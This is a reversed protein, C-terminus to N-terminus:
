AQGRMRKLAQEHPVASSPDAEHEALRRDLEVLFEPSDDPEGDGEDLDDLLREAFARQEEAPWAQVAQWITAQDM